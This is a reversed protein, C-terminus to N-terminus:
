TFGSEMEGPVRFGLSERNKSYEQFRFALDCAHFVVVMPPLAVSRFNPGRGLLIWTGWLAKPNKPNRPYSNTVPKPSIQYKSGNAERTHMFCM